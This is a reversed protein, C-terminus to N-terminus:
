KASVFVSKITKLTILLDFVVSRYKLYFIDYQLKEYADEVSSGYRYNIQAWGTLGPKALHRIEYFPIKKKLEQIFEPREPRPGVFSINGKLINWLQPLEDIHTNRLIKGIPTLRPDNPTAWKPGDSEADVRMTRFKYLVFSNEKLGTRTQKYIIPGRSTLKVAIVALITLPATLIAIIFALSIEVITKITEYLIRHRALYELFWIEELETIPTKNFIQEYLNTLDIVEVGQVLYNLIAQTARQDRKIHTPIVMASIRHKKINESVLTWRPDATGDVLWLEVRFGLQPNERVATIAKEIDPSTGVVLLNQPERRKISRNFSSRWLAELVAVGLTIFLLNARPSIGFARVIYFFALGTLLNISLALALSTFFPLRNKLRRLDYLGLVYFTAIWISFIITFPKSHEQLANYSVDLGYRITLVSILAIYFTILDGILLLVIRAKPLRFM